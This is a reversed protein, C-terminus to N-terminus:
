CAYVSTVTSDVELISYKSRAIKEPKSESTAITILDRRTVLFNVAVLEDLLLGVSSESSM